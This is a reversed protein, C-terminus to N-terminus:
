KFDRDKTYASIGLNFLAYVQLDDIELAKAYCERSEAELEAAQAQHERKEEPDTTVAALDAQIMAMKDCLVGMNNHAWKYHPNMYIDRKHVDIGLQAYHILDEVNLGYQKEIEAIREENEERVKEDYRDTRTRIMWPEYLIGVADICYRGLIYNTEMQQPYVESAKEMSNFVLKYRQVGGESFVM